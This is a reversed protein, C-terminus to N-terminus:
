CLVTTKKRSLFPSTKRWIQALVHTPRPHHDLRSLPRTQGSLRHLFTRPERPWHKYSSPLTTIFFHGESFFWSYERLGQQPYRVGHPCLPVHPCARGELAELRLLMEKDLTEESCDLAASSCFTDVRINSTGPSARLCVPASELQGGALKETSSRRYETKDCGVPTHLCGEKREERSRFEPRGPEGGM